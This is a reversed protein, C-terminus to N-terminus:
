NQLDGFAWKEGAELAPRTLILREYQNALLAQAAIVVAFPKGAWHLLHPRPVYQIYQRQRFNLAFREGRRNRALIDRQLDQLDDQRHEALRATLIPSLLIGKLWLDETVIQRCILKSRLALIYLDQGRL